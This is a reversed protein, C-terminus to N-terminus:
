TICKNDQKEWCGTSIMLSLEASQILSCTECVYLSVLITVTKHINIKVYNLHSISVFAHCFCENMGNAHASHPSDKSNEPAKEM